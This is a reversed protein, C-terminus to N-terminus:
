KSHGWFQVLVKIHTMGNSGELAWQHISVLVMGMECVLFCLSM